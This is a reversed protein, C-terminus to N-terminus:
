ITQCLFGGDVCIDAGIIFGSAKACTTGTAGSVVAVDNTLDFLNTV